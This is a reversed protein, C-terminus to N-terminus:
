VKRSEVFLQPHFGPSTCVLCASLWQSERIAGARERGAAGSCGDDM